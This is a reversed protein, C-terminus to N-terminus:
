VHVTVKRLPVSGSMAITLRCFATLRASAFNGESTVWVPIETSCRPLSIRAINANRVSPVLM